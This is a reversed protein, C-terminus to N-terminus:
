KDEVDTHPFFRAEKGDIVKRDLGYIADEADRPDTYEIFGIGRSERDELPLVECRSPGVLALIDGL